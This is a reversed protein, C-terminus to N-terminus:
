CEDSGRGADHTTAAMRRDIIDDFSQKGTMSMDWIEHFARPSLCRVCEYRKAARRLEAFHSDIIRALKLAVEPHFPNKDACEKSHVLCAVKEAADKAEKSPETHTPTTM